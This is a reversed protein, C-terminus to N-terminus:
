VAHMLSTEAHLPHRNFCFSVISGHAWPRHLSHWAMFPADLNFGMEGLSWQSSLFLFIILTLPWFLPPLYWHSSLGTGEPRSLGKVWSCVTVITAQVFRCLDPWDGDCGAYSRHEHDALKALSSKMASLQRHLFVWNEQLSCDRSLQGHAQSRGCAQSNIPLM